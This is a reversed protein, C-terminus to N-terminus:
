AAKRRREEEKRYDLIDTLENLLRGTRAVYGRADGEPAGGRAKLEYLREQVQNAAYGEEVPQFGEAVERADRYLESTRRAVEERRPSAANLLYDLNEEVRDFLEQRYLPEVQGMGPPAGGQEGGEEPAAPLFSRGKRFGDLREELEADASEREIEEETERELVERRTREEEAEEELRELEEKRERLEEELERQSAELERLRKIRETPPLRSLDSTGAM